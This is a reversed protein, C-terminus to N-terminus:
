CFYRRRKFEEFGNPALENMAEQFALEFSKGKGTEIEVVCCLHDLLDEKLTQITIGGEEIRQRIGQVQEDTLRM